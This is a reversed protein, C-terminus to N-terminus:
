FPKDEVAIREITSAMHRPVIRVVALPHFRVIDRPTLNFNPVYDVPCAVWEFLGLIWPSVTVKEPCGIREGDVRQCLVEVRTGVELDVLEKRLPFEGARILPPMVVIVKRTGVVSGARMGVKALSRELLSLAEAHKGRVFYIRALNEMSATIRPHNPRFLKEALRLASESTKEAKAYREHQFLKEAEFTLQYWVAEM